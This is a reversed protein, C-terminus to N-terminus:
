AFSTLSIESAGSVDSVNRFPGDKSRRPRRPSMDASNDGGHGSHLCIEHKSVSLHSRRPSQLIRRSSCRKPTSIMPSKELMSKDSAVRALNHLLASDNKSRRPPARHGSLSFERCSVARPVDVVHMSYAKGPTVHRDSAARSLDNTQTAKRKQSGGPWHFEKPSATMDATTATNQGCSFRSTFVSETDELVIDEKTAKLAPSPRGISPTRRPLRPSGQRLDELPPPSTPPPPIDQSRRPLRPSKHRHDEEEPPPPPPPPLSAAQRTPYSKIEEPPPPPPPICSEYCPSRRPYRPSKDEPPPPPPTAHQSRRPLRPSGFRHDDLTPPPPSSSTTTEGHNSRRPLRPSGYRYDEPPPPPPAGSRRPRRPSGYKQDQNQRHQQTRGTLVIDQFKSTSQKNAQQRTSPTRSRSTNQKRFSPVIVASDGVSEDDDSISIPSVPRGITIQMDIPSFHIERAEMGQSREQQLQVDM